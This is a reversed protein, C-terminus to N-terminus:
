PDVDSMIKLIKREYSFVLRTLITNVLLSRGFLNIM